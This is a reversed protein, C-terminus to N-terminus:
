IAEVYEIADYQFLVNTTHCDFSIYYISTELYRLAEPSFYTVSPRQMPFVNGKEGDRVKELFPEIDELKTVKSTDFNYKDVYEKNFYIARCMTMAQYTPVAYVKDDVKAADWLYDPITASLEDGYEDLLDTLELFGGRRVGDLYPNTYGTFCLDFEDQSAMILRLRETFDSSVIYQIDIKAGIKPEIIKNIEECVLATDAQKEGQLYWVLTPVDGDAQKGCSAFGLAMIAVLLLAVIKKM